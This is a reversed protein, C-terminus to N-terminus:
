ARVGWTGARKKEVGLLLETHLWVEADMRDPSKMGPVWSCQQDELAPFAGVHHARGQAFLTSIPEARTQKNRTAHVMKYNVFPTKREGARAMETAVLKVVTGIWEGGNNAEAVLVDAELTDYLHIAIRACAEPTGRMSADQLTYGHGRADKGGAVIGMEDSHESSTAAPDMAVGIRVLDPVAHADIRTRDLVGHTWLAGPVNELDQALIEQRMALDSMDQAIKELAEKSLYRNDHSTFHFAEWRGTTDERASAYMKAAHRPDHAKTMGATRFSPPTYVFVADGNNDLLMPAGVVGWADENMLQWEDLILLDAYDGRLTDANWATKVKIRNESHPVEILHRTENKYLIGQDIPVQLARKVEFWCRDVQEQTPVAYLVRKAELFKQVALTAVGVTKGGRRGARIIKRKAASGVFREQQEHLVRMQARVGAHWPQPGGAQQRAKRKQLNLGALRLVTLLTDPHPALAALERSITGPM